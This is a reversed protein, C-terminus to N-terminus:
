VQRPYSCGECTYQLSFDDPEYRFLVHGVSIHKSSVTETQGMASLGILKCPVDYSEDDDYKESDM